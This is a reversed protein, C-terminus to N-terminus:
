GSEAPKTDAPTSVGGEAPLQMFRLVRSEIYSYFPNWRMRLIDDGSVRLVGREGRLALHGLQIGPSKNALPGGYLHDQPSFPLALHALSFVDEPWQQGLTIESIEDRGHMKTRALVQPSKDSKNTIITLDFGRDVARLMPELTNAPDEKLLEEVDVMRNIDFLVLEHGAPPLLAFLNEVLAQMSVTADVVSQFALILPMRELIETHQM